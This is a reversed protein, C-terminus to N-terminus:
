RNIPMIVYMLDESDIRAPRAEDQYQISINEEKINKLVDLIFIYNFKIDVDPGHVEADIDMDGTGRESKTSLHVRNGSVGFEVSKSDESAFLGCGVLANQLSERGVVFYADSKPPIVDQYKPFMGEVRRVSIYANDTKAQLEEKTINITVIDSSAALKSLLSMGKLQFIGECVTDATNRIKKTVLSLRHTDSAVFEAKAGAINIFIGSLSYRNDGKSTAFATKQVADAIDEGHILIAGEEQFQSLMPYDAVDMGPILVNKRVGSVTAQNDTVTITIEDETMTKIFSNLRSVPLLVQGPDKMVSVPLSIVLNTELDTASLVISNERGELRFNQLVLKASREPVITNILSLTESFHMRNVTFEM